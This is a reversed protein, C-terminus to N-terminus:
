DATRHFYVATPLAPFEGADPLAAPLNLAIGRVRSLPAPPEATPTRAADVFFGFAADPGLTALLQEAGGAARWLAVRRPQSPVTQFRYAVQEVLVVTGGPPAAAATAVSLIRAGEPPVIGAAECAADAAADPRLAAAAFTYAGTEDRWGIGDVAARELAGPYAPLAAVTAGHADSACVVGVAAPVRLVIERASARLLGGNGTRHLDAVLWTADASAQAAADDGDYVRSRIHLLQVITAACLAVLAVGSWLEAKSGPLRRPM